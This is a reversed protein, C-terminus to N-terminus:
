KVSALLLLANNIGLEPMWITLIPMLVNQLPGIWQVVLATRPHFVVKRMCNRWFATSFALQFTRRLCRQWAPIDGVVPKPLKEAEVGLWLFACPHMVDLGIFTVIFVGVVDAHILLDTFWFLIQTVIMAMLLFLTWWQTMAKSVAGRDGGVWYSIDVGLMRNKLFDSTGMVISYATLPATIYFLQTTRWINTMSLFFVENAAMRQDMRYRGTASIVMSWTLVQMMWSFLVMGQAEFHYYRKFYVAYYNFGVWFFATWFWLFYTLNDMTILLRAWQALSTPFRTRRLKRKRGCCACHHLYHSITTVLTLGIFFLVMAFVWGQVNLFMDVFVDKYVEAVAGYGVCWDAFQTAVDVMTVYLWDVGLIRSSFEELLGAYGVGYVLNALSGIFTLFLLFTMWIMHIGEECGLFTQLSLVVGGEAWRQVAALYDVPDKAMGYALRRNIYQSHKGKVVRDLSSATDEVKCSEHFFTYEIIQTFGQRKMQVSENDWRSDTGRIGARRDRILWTGGTGCSSVGGACNRLMCNLRFFNSNNTDLFDVDDPMEPYYQPCQTFAVSTDVEQEQEQSKLKKFFFPITEHMFDPQFQHRADAISFLSYKYRQPELADM